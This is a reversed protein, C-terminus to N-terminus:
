AAGGLAALRERATATFPDSPAVQLARAYSGRASAADGLAEQCLGLSTFVLPHQPQSQAVQTLLPLAEQNRGARRYAEGLWYLMVPHQPVLKQAYTLNDIAEKLRGAKTQVIALNIRPEPYAPKVRLAESYFQEAHAADGKQDYTWGLSYPADANSPDIARARELLPIAEDLRNSTMYISALNYYTNYYPAGAAAARAYFQEAEAPRNQLKCVDGLNSLADYFDPQRDVAQRYWREAEPYNKRDFYTAGVFNYLFPRDPDHALAQNAMALDDSWTENQFVTLAFSVVCLVTVASWFVRERREAYRAALWELALAALLCFGVSPIYLYRDHVISEQPNFAKLNMVPLLFLVLWVLARRAVPSRWALLVAAVAGVAVALASAWFRPDAPSDVYTLDYTIALPYPLVLTRAYHVVASPITLLVERTTVGVAKPETKSFFGLVAYRMVLYVAAVAAYPAARRAARVTRAVPSEDPEADLLERAAVFVPFVIATEKAFTAAFALAVSAVPWWAPRLALSRSREYFLLAGLLCLAAVPDPVGSAWAVSEVHTPHLAFLLAAAASTESSLAWERALAYVCATAGLHLAVSVLHWGHPDTGFLHDNLILVINFLPRYYAGVPEQASTNMFQWVSQTFMRPVNGLDALTPNNLIQFKDDYLFAGGLSNLYAVFAVGLAVGLYRWDRSALRRSPAVAHRQAPREATPTTTQAPEPAPEDKRRKKAM